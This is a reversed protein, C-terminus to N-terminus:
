LDQLYVSLVGTSSFLLFRLCVYNSNSTNFLVVIRSLVILFSEACRCSEGNLEYMLSEGGGEGRKRAM